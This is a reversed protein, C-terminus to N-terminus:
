APMDPHEKIDLIMGHEQFQRAVEYVQSERWPWILATHVKYNGVVDKKELYVRLSNTSVKRWTESANELDEIGVLRDEVYEEDISGEISGLRRRLTDFDTELM